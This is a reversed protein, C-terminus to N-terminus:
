LLVGVVKRRNAERRETRRSEAVRTTDEEDGRTVPHSGDLPPDLQSLFVTVVGSKTLFGALVTVLPVWVFLLLLVSPLCKRDPGDKFPLLWLVRNEASPRPHFFTNNQLFVHFIWVYKQSHPPDAYQDYM